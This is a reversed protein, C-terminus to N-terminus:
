SCEEYIEDMEGEAPMEEYVEDPGEDAMTEHTTHEATKLGTMVHRITPTSVEINSANVYGIKGGANQALWKGAPNGDMRLITVMEGTTVVLDKAGLRWGSSGDDHLVVGEGVKEDTDKLGFKHRMKREEEEKKKREKEEKKSLKGGKDKDKEKEKEKEKDRKKKKEDTSPLPSPLPPPVDPEETAEEELAEYIEQPEEVVGSSCDNYTEEPEESLLQASQCDDYIDGGEEEETLEPIKSVRVSTSRHLSGQTARVAVSTSEAEVYLEEMEGDVAEGNAISDEKLVNEKAKAYELVFATLDINDLKSPKSPPPPPPSKEDQLEIKRFKRGDSHRLLLERSRRHVGPKVTNEPHGTGNITDGRDHVNHEPAAFHQENASDPLHALKKVGAETPIRPSVPFKPSKPSKPGMGNEKSKSDEDGGSKEKLAAMREAISPPRGARLLSRKDHESSQPSSNEDPSSCEPKKPLLPTVGATPKKEVSHTGKDDPKEVHRLHVPFVGPKGSTVPKLPSRSASSNEDGPPSNPKLASGFAVPKLPTPPAGPKSPTAPPVPKSASSPPDPKSDSAPPAPKLASPGAPKPAGAGPTPRPKPTVAPRPAGGLVPNNSGSSQLLALREKVSLGSDAASAMSTDECAGQGLGLGGVCVIRCAPM